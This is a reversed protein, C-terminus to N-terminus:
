VIMASSTIPAIRSNQATPIPVPLPSQPLIEAPAGTLPSPHTASSLDVESVTSPICRRVKRALRHIAAFAAERMSRTREDDANEVDESCEKGRRVAM